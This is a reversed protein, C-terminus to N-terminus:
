NEPGVRKMQCKFWDGTLKSLTGTGPISVLRGQILNPSSDDIELRFPLVRGYIGTVRKSAGLSLKELPTLSGYEEMIDYLLSEFNRYSFVLTQRGSTSVIAWKGSVEQFIAKSFVNTKREKMSYSFSFEGDEFLEIYAELKPSTFPTRSVYYGWKGVVDATKLETSAIKQDNM